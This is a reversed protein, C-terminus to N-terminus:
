HYTLTVQNAQVQISLIRVASQSRLRYFRATSKVSTTITELVTDIVADTEVAFSGNLSTASELVLTTPQLVVVSLSNTASMQPVGNDWVIVSVTNTSPAQASTPTWSFVGNTTISAGTPAGSGLSFTLTQPPQDTDTASATFTLLTNAYVTQNPIAALVPPTNPRYVVVSFSNTASMQPVGSDTVIVSLANTSPAQAATPTWTFVGNTTVSAGTPAGSGLSFTLTQPPQDTDTASATFTLLTNAYVTQDSLTGLVPPTNPRYVVVKFSNTASMQPQGSDQVIVSVTNMSPAQAATPTWTFVGNTTISAGAPSGTGLSFTLTQPPQDTDTASATFTLLTNAYVSQNLISSLVPPTNPRYVVVNFTNTASMQPVGSDTVIVSIPYTGPSQAATPTWTFVGGSTISAGTPAGTGLSFTLTQPPQDTDTASATFTLLTNAYVSQNPIIALVPASNTNSQSSTASFSLNDIGLGQAKGTSDPM